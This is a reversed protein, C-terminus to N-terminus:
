KRLLLKLGEASVLIALSVGFLFAALVCVFAGCILDTLASYV